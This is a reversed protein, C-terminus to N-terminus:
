HTRNAAQGGLTTKGFRKRIKQDRKVLLDTPTEANPLEPVVVPAPTTPLPKPEMGPGGGIGPSGGMGIAGGAGPSGGTGMGGGAGGGGPDECGPSPPISVFRSLVQARHPIFVTAVAPSIRFCSDDACETSPFEEVHVFGNSFPAFSGNGLPAGIAEQHCGICSGAFHARNALDEPTLGTGQLANELDARFGAPNGQALQQAYGQSFDNRSEADKCEQPVPFSMQAPDDPLLSPIANIFAQRCAAGDENPALDNWLTGNPAEATPFPIATLAAGNVALKFERLTWPFDDFQNTRIQGSGVTLNSASMFPGVGQMQLEPLGTLFAQSARIGREIPDPIAAQTAWFDAIPQCGALGLEPAPNPVQAEFIFFMRNQANSSFILRQQGCHAGNEPALDLRNVIATPFFKDLNDFQLREIRNCTIPFGNLTPVGDTTEDGCHIADPLRAQDATAYSDIVEGYLREGPTAFGENAAIANWVARMSLASTASVTTEFLARRENVLTDCVPPPPPVDGEDVGIQVHIRGKGFEVVEDGLKFSYFLFNDSNPSVFAFQVANSVLHAAVFEGSGFGGAGGFAGGTGSPSGGEGIGGGSSSSGGFGFDPPGADMAGGGMTDDSYDVAVGADALVEPVDDSPPPPPDGMFIPSDPFASGAPAGPSPVMVAGGTGPFFGGDLRELFWGDLLTVTYEGADLEATLLTASPDRETRLTKVVNGSKVDTIRFRGERLRYRNGASGITELPLSIQGTLVPAEQENPEQAACGPVALAAVSTLIAATVAGLSSRRERLSIKRISAAMNKELRSYGANDGSRVQANCTVYRPLIM